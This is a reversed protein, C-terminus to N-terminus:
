HVSIMLPISVADAPRSREAQLALKVESLTRAQRYGKLGGARMSMKLNSILLLSLWRADTVM